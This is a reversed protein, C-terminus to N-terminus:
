LTEAEPSATESRGPGSEGPGPEVPPAGFLLSQPSTELLNLVRSLQRSTSTLETTMERLRPGLSDAGGSSINSLVGDLRTSVGQLQVMLKQADEVLPSTEKVTASLATINEDSLLRDVQELTHNMRASASELNDLTKVMSARNEDKLVDNASQLFKEAQSLMRPLAEGLDDLLSSRMVIRPPNAADGNLVKGNSGNDELLVQAIGTIGQYSLRATTGYTLPVSRDIEILILIDGVKEPDLRIDLVNGVRIGRYRVQAQPNLGMVNGQTVVIVQKVDKRDEGFVYLSVLVAFGLVLTFVGAILAHSKNEM